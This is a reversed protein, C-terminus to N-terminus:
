GIKALRTKTSSILRNLEALTSRAKEIERASETKFTAHESKLSALGEALTSVEAMMVNKTEEASARMKTIEGVIKVRVQERNEDLAKQFQEFAVTAEDRKLTLTEVEKTLKAKETEFASAISEARTAQTLVEELKEFAQYHNQLEQVIALAKRTEM